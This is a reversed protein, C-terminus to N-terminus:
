QRRGEVLLQSFDENIIDCVPQLHSESTWSSFVEAEKKSCLDPAEVHQNPLEMVSTKGAHFSSVSLGEQRWM